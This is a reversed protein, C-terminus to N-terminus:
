PIVTVSMPQGPAAPGASIQTNGAQIGTITFNCSLPSGQLACTDPTLTVIGSESSYIGLPYLPVIDTNMLYLTIEESEGTSLTINSESFMLYASYTQEENISNTGAGCSVVCLIVLISIFVCCIKSM